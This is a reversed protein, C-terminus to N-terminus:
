EKIVIGVGKLGSNVGELGQIDDRKLGEGGESAGRTVGGREIGKVM